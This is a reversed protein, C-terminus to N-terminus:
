MPWPVDEQILMMRRIELRAVGEAPFPFTYRCGKEFADPM